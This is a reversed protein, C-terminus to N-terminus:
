LDTHLEACSWQKVANQEMLLFRETQKNEIPEEAMWGTVYHPVIPIISGFFHLFMCLPLWINAKKVLPMPRIGLSVRVLNAWAPRTPFIYNEVSHDSSWILASIVAIKLPVNPNDSCWDNGNWNKLVMLPHLFSIYGFTVELKGQPPLSTAEIQELVQRYMMAVICTGACTLMNKCLKTHYFGVRSLCSNWDLHTAVRKNFEFCIIIMCLWPHGITRSPKWGVTTWLKEAGVNGCVKPLSEQVCSGGVACPVSCM